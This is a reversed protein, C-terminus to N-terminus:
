RNITGCRPWGELSGISALIQPPNAILERIDLQEERIFRKLMFSCLMLAESACNMRSNRHIAPSCILLSALNSKARRSSRASPSCFTLALLRKRREQSEQLSARRRRADLSSSFSPHSQRFAAMVGAPSQAAVSHFSGRIMIWDLSVTRTSPHGIRSVTDRTLVRHGTRSLASCVLLPIARARAFLYRCPRRASKGWGTRLRASKAQSVGRGSESPARQPKYSSPFPGPRM